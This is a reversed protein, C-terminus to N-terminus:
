LTMLEIGGDLCGFALVRCTPDFAVCTLTSGRRIDLDRQINFDATQVLRIGGQYDGLVLTKSDPSVGSCTVILGPIVASQSKAMTELEYLAITTGNKPRSHTFLNTTLFSGCPSFDAGFRLMDGSGPEFGPVAITESAFDSAGEARWLRIIFGDWSVANCVSSQGGAFFLSCIRSAYHDHHFSHICTEEEVNWLKIKLSGGGAAALLNSDTRAFSMMVAAQPLTWTTRKRFTQSSTTQFLKTNWIRISTDQSSALYMGDTSYELCSIHGTGGELITEKCWRDFIHVFQPDGSFALHSGSPSFAVAKV